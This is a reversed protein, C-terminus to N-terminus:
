APDYYPEIKEILKRATLSITQDAWLKRRASEWLVVARLMPFKLGRGLRNRIKLVFIASEIRANHLRREHLIYAILEKRWRRSINLARQFHLKFPSAEVRKEWATFRARADQETKADLIRLGENKLEWSARLAPHLSLLGKVILQDKRMVNQPRAWLLYRKEKLAKLRGKLGKQCRSLAEAKLAEEGFRQKDDDSFKAMEEAILQELLQRQVEMRVADFGDEIGDSFHFRDGIVKAHPLAAEKGKHKRTYAYRNDKRFDTSLTEVKDRNGAEYFRNLFTKQKEDKLV